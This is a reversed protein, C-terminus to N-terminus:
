HTSSTFSAAWAKWGVALGDLRDVIEPTTLRPGGQPFALRVTRLFGIGQERYVDIVRQDFAVQYWGYNAPDHQMLEDYHSDFDELRSFHHPAALGQRWFIESSLAQLPFKKRLYAYGVYSALLENFWGTQPDIGLARVIVHGIEHTGIGDCGEFQVQRWTRGNALARRLLGQPVRDRAPLTMWTVKSWDNPMVFVFPAQDSVSPMGYPDEPDVDHWDETTLVALSIPPLRQSFLISYYSLEGGLLTQLQHARSQTGYSYYTPLPGPIFALGLQSIAASRTKIPPTAATSVPSTFVEATGLLGAAFGIWSQYLWAFVQHPPM